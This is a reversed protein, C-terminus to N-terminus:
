VISSTGTGYGAQTVDRETLVEKLKKALTTPRYPKAIFPFEALAPRSPIDERTYGSSLLIKLDSRLRSARRALEIGSMGAPMVIDTFLLDVSPDQELLALAEPGTTAVLTRYGLDSLIGVIMERVDTDDEVVLITANRGTQALSEGPALDDVPKGSARPIYIHVTTGKGVKSEIRATGGSQKAFGYVQSLGLGTGKGVEKTTFFPEFAREILKASMGCGTDNVSLVVYDGALLDLGYGGGATVNDTRLTLRGSRNMADRANAALNLVAASFEASDVHCPWIDEQLLLEIEIGEGVTRQCLMLTERLLDNINMIEPRVDERRSFALLQSTLQSGRLAARLAGQAYRRTTDAPPLIGALMELNGVIATLLNNFDHAVGGTLQGIAEMKQAHHLQAEAELKETLDRIFGNFVHGEGRRLATISLEVTIEKGDRRVAQLQVRQGLVRGAGTRLYRQLGKRHARRGSRPVILDALYKGIAEQRSYGFIAQAQANWELVIGCQDIQVFADLATDIIGVALAATEAL